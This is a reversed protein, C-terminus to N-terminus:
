AGCKRTLKRRKRGSVAKATLRLKAKVTAKTKREARQGRGKAKTKQKATKGKATNGKATKGNELAEMKRKPLKEYVLRYSTGLLEKLEDDRLVDFRELALWQNRALYPAPVVGEREQCEYFDDPTAKFSLVVDDQPELALVAFMKGGVKLVLHGGWQVVETVHPLSLCYERISEVNV